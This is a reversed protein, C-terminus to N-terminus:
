IKLKKIAKILREKWQDIKDCIEYKGIKSYYLSLDQPSPFILNEMIKESCSYITHKPGLYIPWNGGGMPKITSRISTPLQISIGYSPISCYTYCKNVKDKFIDEEKSIEWYVKEKDIIHTTFRYDYIGALYEHKLRDSTNETNNIITDIKYNWAWVADEENEFLGACDGVCYRPIRFGKGEGLTTYYKFIISSPNSVVGKTPSITNLTKNLNKTLSLNFVWLKQGIYIDGSKFQTLAIETSEM